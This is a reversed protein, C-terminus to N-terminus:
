AARANIGRARKAAETLLWRSNIERYDGARVVGKALTFSGDAQIRDRRLDWTEGVRVTFRPLRLETTFEVTVMEYRENADAM